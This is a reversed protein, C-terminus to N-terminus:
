TSIDYNEPDVMKDCHHLPLVLTELVRQPPEFGEQPAM